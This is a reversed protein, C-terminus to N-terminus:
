MDTRMLYIDNGRLRVKVPHKGRVAAIAMCGRAVTPSAYEDVDMEIKAFPVNLQVFDRLFDQLRHNRRREPICTVAVAKM